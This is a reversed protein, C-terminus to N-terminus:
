RKLPLTLTFRTSRQDSEAKLTGGHEQAISQGISLGLGFGSQEGRSADARYFREFLRKLKEPPIPEGPNEVTLRAQRESRRLSLTITGGAAGYKIANDLLISILQRLKEGDGLVAIGEQIEEELPKGAEFAVPEFALACDMATESLSVEGLVTSRVGNDSRALTLMQEVLHKMQEAETRINDTWRAPRPDLATGCLLEANSLIVTLPTKLEHSADSLFQKQQAWAKEVPRTVRRSLLVSVGLLLLFALGAIVLYSGVMRRLVAKEMSLDVFALKEYLGNDVRLYRLHNEAVTGTSRGQNLCEEVIAKLAETNELDGYTGGTVEATWLGDQRPWVNVTFYPLLVQDGGLNLGLEPRFLGSGSYFEQTLVQELVERSLKETNSVTASYVAFFVMALVATVLTMCSAVFQLKLRRLM